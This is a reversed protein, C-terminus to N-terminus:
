AHTKRREMFQKLSQEGKEQLGNQRCFNKYQDFSEHIKTM